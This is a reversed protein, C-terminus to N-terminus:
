KEKKQYDSICKEIEEKVYSDNVCNSLEFTKMAKEEWITDDTPLPPSHSLVPLIDKAPHKHSKFPESPVCSIFIFGILLLKMKM